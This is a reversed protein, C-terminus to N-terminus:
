AEKQTPHITPAEVAASKAPAGATAGAPVGLSAAPAGITTGDVGAGTAEAIVGGLASFDEFFQPYSKAICEAGCITSPAATYASTVAGMMAIRHDNAADLVGGRLPKGANGKIVMDDGDLTVDAGLANLGARVTELRDSEKLRLREAGTIRTTGTAFSAAAAVPPVLDPCASVGITAGHLHGPEVTVRISAQGDGTKMVQTRAGLKELIGLIAKDGQASSQDLGTVEVSTGEGVQGAIASAAIWFAANSWDGEVRCVGPSQPHSHGRVVYRTHPTPTGHANPATVDDVEVPVGFTRLAEVTIDIYPASQIPHEVLVEADGDMITAALLLGTIYQSSVNGPMRFADPQLRGKLRLPSAAQPSLVSGHAEMQEYLPSLPRAALRGHRIVESPVGLASAVPLIFRLTSGSEGCDLQVPVDAAVGAQASAPADTAAAAGTDGKTKAIPAVHLVSGERAISAGLATLCACTAEIDRSTTNCVVDTPADALAACILLRHAASKSAVAPVSGNLAHPSVVVDM